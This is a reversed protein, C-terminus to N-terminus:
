GALGRPRCVNVKGTLSRLRGHPKLKHAGSIRRPGDSAIVRERWAQHEEVVRRELGAEQELRRKCEVLRKPRARPIPEARM